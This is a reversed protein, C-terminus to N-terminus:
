LHLICIVHRLIVEEESNHATSTCTVLDGVWVYLSQYTCPIDNVRAWVCTYMIYHIYIYIYVYM